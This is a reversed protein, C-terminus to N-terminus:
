SRTEMLILEVERGAPVGDSGAPVDVLCNAGVLSVLARNGVDGTFGVRGGRVVAPVFRRLRSKKSFKEELRAVTRLNEADVRGALRRLLPAALLEFTVFCAFPNGSLCLAPKGGVNLGMAPTGPMVEVGHFLTDARLLRAADPMADRLGVSVGGTTVVADADALLEQLVDAIVAPDDRVTRAATVVAGLEDIRAAVMPGNSDFIGAPGPTGGHTALESGTSVVAIRPRRYVTAAGYGQGALLAIRAHDFVDGPHALPQGPRVFEGKFVVNQHRDHRVRIAVAIDGMDTDEQRVVCDAGPPLPAGTMIRAASHPRLPTPADGAHILQSVPLRVPAAATVGALDAHHFAYGDLPSRDFPPQATVATVPEAAVRRVARALPLSEVDGVRAAAELLLWTATELSVPSRSHM